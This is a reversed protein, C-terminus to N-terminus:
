PIMWWSWVGLLGMFRWSVSTRFQTLAKEINFCGILLLLDRYPPLPKDSFTRSLWLCNRRLFIFGLHTAWTGYEVFMKCLKMVATIGGHGTDADAIIPRLYDVFPTRLREEQHKFLRTPMAVSANFIL